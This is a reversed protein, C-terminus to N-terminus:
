KFDILRNGKYTLYGVEKERYGHYSLESVYFSLRKGDASFVVSYRHKEGYKTFVKCESKSLVEAKVTKVPKMLGTAVRIIILIILAALFLDTLISVTTLFVKEMHM